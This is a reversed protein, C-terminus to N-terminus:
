KLWEPKNPIITLVDVVETYKDTIDLWEKYWRTLELNQSNDIQAYWVLGRNVISFCQEERLIRLNNLIEEKTLTKVRLIDEYEDYAEQPKVYEVDVM